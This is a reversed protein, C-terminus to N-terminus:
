LLFGAALLLDGLFVFWVLRATPYGLPLLPVCALGLWPPYYYPLFAYLGEGVTAKDWGLGRQISAQLDADYPSQGAKILTAATWFQIFDPCLKESPFAEKGFYALFITALVFGLSWGMPRLWSRM